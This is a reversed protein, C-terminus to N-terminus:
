LRGSYKRNKRVFIALEIVAFFFFLYGFLEICEESVNKVSRFYKEEMVIEWFVTRGYLRSFIFVTIIGFTMFAYSKTSMYGILQEWVEIRGKYVKFAVFGLVLLVPYPWTGHGFAEEFYIDQERILAATSLGFILLFIYRFVTTNKSLYFGICILSSLFLLFSQTYEVYSFESFKMEAEDISANWKMLEATLFVVVSYIFFRGAEKFFVTKNSEEIGPQM